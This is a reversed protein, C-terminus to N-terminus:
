DPELLTAGVVGVQQLVIYSSRVGLSAIPCRWPLSSARQREQPWSLGRCSRFPVAYAAGFVPEVADAGAAHSLHINLRDQNTQRCLLAAVAIPTRRDDIQWLHEVKIRAQWCCAFFQRAFQINMSAGIPAGLLVDRQM